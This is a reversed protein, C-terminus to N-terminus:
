RKMRTGKRTGFDHSQNWYPYSSPTSHPTRFEGFKNGKIAFSCRLIFRLHALFRSGPQEIRNMVSGKVIKPTRRTHQDHYIHLNM